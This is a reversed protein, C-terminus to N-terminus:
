FSLFFIAVSSVISHLFCYFAARLEAVVAARRDLGALLEAVVAALLDDIGLCRCGRRNRRLFRLLLILSKRLIRLLLALSERLLRLLLGLLATCELLVAILM